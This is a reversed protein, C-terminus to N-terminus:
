FSNELEYKKIAKKVWNRAPDCIIFLVPALLISTVALIKSPMNTGTDTLPNYGHSYIFWFITFLTVMLLLRRGWISTIQMVAYSRIVEVTFIRRLALIVIITGPIFILWPSINLGHTFHGVDGENSFATLTLYQMLPIVNIVLAWYLLSFIFTNKQIGRRPLLILSVVFLIGTVIVANVAIIAAAIQHHTAVLMSYDVNEDVHFLAWGGYYIDFPSTKQGFFWAALGHGMWEHLLICAYYAIIYTVVNISFIYSASKQYLKRM